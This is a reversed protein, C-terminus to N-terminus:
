AFRGPDDGGQGSSGCFWEVRKLCPHRFRWARDLCAEAIEAHSFPEQGRVGANQRRINEGTDKHNLRGTTRLTGRRARRHFWVGRQDSFASQECVETTFM